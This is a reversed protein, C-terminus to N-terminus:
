EPAVSASRGEEVVGGRLQEDIEAVDDAPEFLEVDVVRAGAGRLFVVPRVPQELLPHEAAVQHTAIQARSM